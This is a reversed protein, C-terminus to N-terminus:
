EKRGAIMNAVRDVIQIPAFRGAPAANSRVFAGVRKMWALEDATMPGRDLAAMAEDLEAANKPGALCLNVDPNTLAFRYCDSARPTAEGPPTLKPDCLHGWRTATYAVVAPRREAPAPLLPFVEKEAGPHAANYRVMIGGYTADDMYRAFSPRNHGSILLHRAKGQDVLRRAADVIREPPAENWWGLLLFDTYEIKLGRLALELSPGVLAAVRSYTQVVTIVRDRDRKACSRVGRGFAPRRVSGWYFYGIGRDFAREVDREEIGYSSGLGLPATRLGTRGLTVQDWSCAM